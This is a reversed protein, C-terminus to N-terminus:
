LVFWDYISPLEATERAVGYAGIREDLALEFMEFGCKRCTVAAKRARSAHGSGGRIKATVRGVCHAM